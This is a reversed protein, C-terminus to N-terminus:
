FTLIQSDSFRLIQPRAESDHGRNKTHQFEFYYRLRDRLNEPLARQNCYRELSRLQKRFAELRM